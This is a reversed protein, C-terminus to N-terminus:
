DNDLRERINQAGGKGNCWTFRSGSNGIDVLGHNLKLQYFGDRSLYAYPRGGWKENQGSIANFDRMVLWPGGFSNGM